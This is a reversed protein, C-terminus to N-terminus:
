RLNRALDDLLDLREAVLDDRALDLHRGLELAFLELESAVRRPKPRAWVEPPLRCGLCSANRVRDSGARGPGALGRAARQFPGPTEATANPWHGVDDGDEAAGAEQAAPDDSRQEGTAGGHTDGGAVGVSGEEGLDGVAQLPDDGVDGVLDGDPRRDLAGGGDGVGDREVDLAAADGEGSDM